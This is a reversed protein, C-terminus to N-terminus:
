RATSWAQWLRAYRGGSAVLEDHTGSEVVRGSELVVVRDAAAAQTLRHAVVLATRGALAREAAAELDRAGASGADATAEDLIVIPHDTLALRALAVQQAQTTTLRHGATGVVTDLGQPLAQAWARAGVTELAARLEEDTADPKALRLDEALTGSFTHVEQSILAVRDRVADPDLEDLDVGGVSITGATPSHVGAILKALTTKGAGSGGVLALREGDALHLDIDALVPTGPRYAYSLGAIKVTGDLRDGSAPREGPGAPLDLVGVMRALSAGASQADDVLLLATNIPNFLHHFYLAAATATGLSVAGAGVLWFGTAVIAALGIYEALNLRAFFRTMLRIGRLALDVASQSSNRVGPLRREALGFARITRSGGLTDLLRQHVVGVAARHRAYVPAARRVYWRVTHLQIPVAVLAALLFRWDLVALAVLTLGITLTARGLEPVADRVTKTVMTVDSTVRSTLDGSGAQELRALPLGLAREVFQERLQAVVTEGVRAVLAFGAATAAGHVVAVAALGLVPTLIADAGRRQDVLDVLHGLLPATLLGVATAGVLVLFAASAPVRRQRLAAGIVAAVRRGDAVPLLTREASM